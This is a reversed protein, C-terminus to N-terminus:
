RKKKKLNDEMIKAEVQKERKNKRCKECIKNSEGATLTCGCQKCKKIM